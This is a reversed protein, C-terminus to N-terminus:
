IYLKVAGFDTLTLMKSEHRQYIAHLDIKPAASFKASKDTDHYKLVPYFVSLM